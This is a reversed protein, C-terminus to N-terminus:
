YSTLEISTELVKISEAFFQPSRSELFRDVENIVENNSYFITGVFHLQLHSFIYYDSPVMAPSYPPHQIFDWEMAYLTWESMASPHPWANDQHYPVVDNRFVKKKVKRWHCRWKQNACQQINYQTYDALKKPINQLYNWM